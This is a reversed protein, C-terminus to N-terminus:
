CVARAQAVTFVGEDCFVDCFTAYPACAPLIEDIVHQVYGEQDGAFEPPVAHAGLFTPILDIAVTEDVAAIAGM